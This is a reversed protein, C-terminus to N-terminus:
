SALQDYDAETVQKVTESGDDWRKILPKVGRLALGTDRNRYMSDIHRVDKPSVLWRKEQAEFTAADMHYLREINNGMQDRVFKKIDPLLKSHVSKLSFLVISESRLVDAVVACTAPLTM